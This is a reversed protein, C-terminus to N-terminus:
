STKEPILVHVQRTFIKSKSFVRRLSMPVWPDGGVLTRSTGTLHVWGILLGVSRCTPGSVKDVVVAVKNPDRFVQRAQPAFKEGLDRCSAVLLDASQPIQGTIM